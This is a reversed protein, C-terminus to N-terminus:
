RRTGGDSISRSGSPTLARAKMGFDPCLRDTNWAHSTIPEASCGGAELGAVLHPMLEPADIEITVSM